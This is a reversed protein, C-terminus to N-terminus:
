AIDRQRLLLNKIGLQALEVVRRFDRDSGYYPDPVEDDGDVGAFRLFLDVKHALNPPCRSKLMHLNSHDMALIADFREFDSLAIQRARHASADYGASAASAISRSDASGGIHYGATGASDVAIDLGSHAFEHRAIAAVVPSRCINGLCVFLISKV